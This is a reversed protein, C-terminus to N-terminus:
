KDRVLAPSLQTFIAAGRENVAIVIVRALACIERRRGLALRMSSSCLLDSDARIELMAQPNTPTGAAHQTLDLLFDPSVPARQRCQMGQSSPPLPASPRPPPGFLLDVPKRAPRPAAASPLLRTAHLKPALDASQPSGLAGSCTRFLQQTFRTRAHLRPSKQSCGPYCKKVRCTRRTRGSWFHGSKIWLRRCVAVPSNRLDARMYGATKEGVGVSQSKQSAGARAARQAARM